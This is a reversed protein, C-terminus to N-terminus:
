NTLIVLCHYQLRLVYDFEKEKNPQHQKNHKASTHGISIERGLAQTDAPDTSYTRGNGASITHSLSWNWQTWNTYINRAHDNLNKHQQQKYKHKVKQHKAGILLNALFITESRYRTYCSMLGSDVWHWHETSSRLPMCGCVCLKVVWSPINIILTVIVIVVTYILSV